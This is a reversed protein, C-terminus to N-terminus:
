IFSYYYAKGEKKRLKCRQAPCGQAPCGLIVETITVPLVETLKNKNVLL